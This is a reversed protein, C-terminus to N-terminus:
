TTRPAAARRLRDNIALGLGTQPIPAIAIGEPSMADLAHLSAFLNAAAEPLNASPSLNMTCDMPGFGLFAEGTYPRTVDLRVPAGPAYHSALQGPATPAGQTLPRALPQALVAEIAEASLGGPRLLHPAGSLGVITSEVGVDCAGGDVIAEIRGSLGLAVHDATTPSIRGSPNASPAAVPGGFAALVARAVPHAPVRVALTPLEATVLPSLGTGARLPLVLTLPGPWFVQALREAEKSWVVLDRADAASAVHVILPNFRPRGKAEFIRAVAHNNHADAGLGYVTETPFAVLGGDALIMAATAYGDKTALLLNTSSSM